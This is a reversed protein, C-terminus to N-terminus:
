RHISFRHMDSPFRQADCTRDVGVVEFRIVRWLLHGGLQPVIMVDPLRSGKVSGDYKFSLVSSRTICEPSISRVSLSPILEPLHQHPKSPVQLSTSGLLYCRKSLIEAAGATHIGTSRHLDLKASGESEIRWLRFCSSARHLSTRIEVRALSEAASGRQTPAPDQM